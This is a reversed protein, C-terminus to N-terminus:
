FYIQDKLVICVQLAFMDSAGSGPESGKQWYDLVNTIMPRM